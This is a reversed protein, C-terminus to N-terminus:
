TRPGDWPTGGAGEGGAERFAARPGGSGQARERGAGQVDKDPFHRHPWLWEPSGAMLFTRGTNSNCAPGSEGTFRTLVSVAKGAPVTGSFAWHPGEQPPWRPTFHALRAAPSTGAWALPTHPFGRLTESAMPLQKRCCCSLTPEQGHLLGRGAGPSVGQGDWPVRRPCSPAPQAGAERRLATSLPGAPVPPTTKFSFPPPETCLLGRKWAHGGGRAAPQVPGRLGLPSVAARWEDWPSPNSAASLQNLVVNASTSLESKGAVRARQCKRQAQNRRMCLWGLSWIAPYRTMTVESSRRIRVRAM